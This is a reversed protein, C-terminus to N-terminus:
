AHLNSVGKYLVDIFFVYDQKAQEFPTIEHIIKRIKQFKLHQMLQLLKILNAKKIKPLDELALHSLVRELFSQQRTKLDDITIDLSPQAKFFKRMMVMFDSSKLYDYDYSFSEIAWAYLDLPAQYTSLVSLHNQEYASLMKLFLHKYLDELSSFYQYFSGRAMQTAKIIMAINVDSYPYSLFVNKAAEEIHKQKSKSLNFFTEKPM